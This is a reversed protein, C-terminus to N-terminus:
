DRGGTLGLPVGRALSMANNLAIEATSAYGSDIPTASESFAKGKEGAKGILVTWFWQGERTGSEQINIQLVRM